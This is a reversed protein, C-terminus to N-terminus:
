WLILFRLVLLYSFFVLWEKDLFYFKKLKFDRLIIGNNHCARLTECIQRYLGQAEQEGLRRKERIYTHLDNYGCDLPIIVYTCNKSLPIIDRVGRFLQHGHEDSVCDMLNFYAAQVKALPENVIKCHFNEETYIDLCALKNGEYLDCSPPGASLLYRDKLLDLNESPSNDWQISQIDCGGPSSLQKRIERLTSDLLSKKPTMVNKNNNNSSSHTEMSNAKVTLATTYSLRNSPSSVYGNTDM